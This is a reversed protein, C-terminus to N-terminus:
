DGDQLRAQVEAFAAGLARIPRDLKKIEVPLLEEFVIFIAGPSLGRPQDPDRAPTGYEAVKAYAKHLLSRLRAREPETLAPRLAGFAAGVAELNGFVDVLDAGGYVDERNALKVASIESLIRSAGAALKQAGFDASALDEQLQKTDALLRERCRDHGRHRGGGM